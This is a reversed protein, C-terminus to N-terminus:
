LNWSFEESEKLLTMCERGTLVLFIVVAVAWKWYYAMEYFQMYLDRMIVFGLSVLGAASFCLYFGERGRTKRVMYLSLFATLLYPVLIYVGTYLLKEKGAMLIVPLIGGLLVVNSIGLIILRAMLISKMSFRSALELEEMGYQVSKRSELAASLALFPVFASLVWLIDVNMSGFGALTFVFLGLSIVFNYKRMYLLQSVLFDRYAFHNVEGQEKELALRTLFEEKELPEPAEYIKKLGEKIKRNM